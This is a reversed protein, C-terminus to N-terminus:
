QEVKFVGVSKWGNNTKVLRQFVITLDKESSKAILKYNSIYEVKGDHDVSYISRVYELNNYKSGEFLIKNQENLANIREEKTSIVKEKEEKSSYDTNDMLYEFDEENIILQKFTDFDNNELCEIVSKGFKEPTESVKISGCSFLILLILSLINMMTNYTIAKCSIRETAVAFIRLLRSTNTINHEKM